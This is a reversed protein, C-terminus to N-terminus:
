HMVDHFWLFLFCFFRVDPGQPGPHGPPGPACGPARPKPKEEEDEEHYVNVGPEM